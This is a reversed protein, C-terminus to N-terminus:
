ANVDDSDLVKITFPIKADSHLAINQGVRNVYETVVPDEVFKGQRDVDAALQRGMNVEKNLSYFNIQHSNINRKGILLPNEDDSLKGKPQGVGGSTTQAPEQSAPKPDDAFLTSPTVFVAALLMVTVRRFRISKM